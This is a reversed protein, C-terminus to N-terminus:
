YGDATRLQPHQQWYDLLSKNIVLGDTEEDIFNRAPEWTESDDHWRVKYRTVERKKGKKGRSVLKHQLILKLVHTNITPTKLAGHYFELDAVSVVPHRRGIQPGQPLDSLRAALGGVLSEIRFPGIRRPDLTTEPNQNRLWVLNGAKFPAPVRGVDYREKM